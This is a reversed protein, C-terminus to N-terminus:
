QEATGYVEHYNLTSSIAETIRKAEALSLVNNYEKFVPVPTGQQKAKMIFRHWVGKIFWALRRPSKVVFWLLKGVVNKHHWFFTAYLRSYDYKYQKEAGMTKLAQIASQAIITEGSFIQPIDKDWKEVTDKPLWPKDQIRGFHQNRKGEGRASAHGYGSVMLYDSIFVSEGIELCTAVANAMDPSPGPFCTGVKNYIRELCSKAVIGHYLRPLRGLGGGKNLNHKLEEKADLVTISGNVKNKFFMNAEESMGNEFTMDPWNFGPYPFCCGEIDHEKLYHVAKLMNSCITDDDGIMCIYEGTAHAVGMDCNEIVSVHEAKHYYKIRSDDLSQIFKVFQENNETNDQIVIEIENSDIERISNVCDYLYQYRNYTPIVISLIPQDM